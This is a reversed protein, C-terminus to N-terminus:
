GIKPCNECNHKGKKKYRKCCKLKKLGQDFPIMDYDFVLYHSARSM